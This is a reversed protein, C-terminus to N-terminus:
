VITTVFDPSEAYFTKAAVLKKAMEQFTVKM